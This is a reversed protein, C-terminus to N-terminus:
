EKDRVLAVQRRIALTRLRRGVGILPGVGIAQSEGQFLGFAGAVALGSLPKGQHHTALCLHSEEKCTWVDPSLALVSFRSFMEHWIPLLSAPAGSWILLWM